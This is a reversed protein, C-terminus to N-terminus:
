LTIEFYRFIESGAGVGIHQLPSHVLLLIYMNLCNSKAGNVTNYLIFYMYIHCNLYSIKLWDESKLLRAASGDTQSLLYDM